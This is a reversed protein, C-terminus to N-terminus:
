EEGIKVAENIKLKNIFVALVAIGTVLMLAVVTYIKLNDSLNSVVELPLVSDAYAIKLLPTYIRVTLTGILIGMLVSMGTTLLHEWTLMATLKGKTLGMARLIGFQLKRKRVNMIWYILFGVFAVILTSIFGISYSGNLGKLLSDSKEAEMIDPRYVNLEKGSKILGDRMLMEVFEDEGARAEENLSMFLKFDTTNRVSYLYDFNMIIFSSSMAGVSEYRLGSGLGSLATPWYDIVAAVYCSMSPWGEFGYQNSGNIDVEIFDGPKANAQKALDKSILVSIPSLEMANLYHYWHLGNLSEGCWSIQAFEYPDIAMISVDGYWRYDFVDRVITNNAYAVRSVNEIYDKSTFNEVPYSRFPEPILAHSGDEYFEYPKYESFDPSVVADAGYRYLVTEEVNNNIIRASSSSYIGVAITMVLFLMLFRYDNGGRSVQIFASYVSPPLLRKIIKFILAIVFPYIRLFLLGSGLIFLSSIIYVIPDVTGNSNFGGTRKYIFFLGVAVVLFIVDLFSKEWFTMRSKRARRQKLNVITKRTAALAPFLIMAAFIVCAVIAYLYASADLHVIMKDRSNFELVGSASGITKAAVFGLLPGIVIAFISIFGCEIAYRVFIQGTKAGRSKFTSIENRDEEIIMKTVMVMYFALMAIVPVNLVWLSMQLETSRSIYANLLSVCNLNLSGRGIGFERAYRFLDSYYSVFSSLNEISMGEFSLNVYVDIGSLMEAGSNTFFVSEFAPRAAIMKRNFMGELKYWYPDEPDNITFTGVPRIRIPAGGNIATSYFEYIKGFEIQGISLYESDSLLVDLVGDEATESYWEGEIITIHSEVGSISAISYSTTFEFDGSRDVPALRDAVIQEYQNIISAETKAVGDIVRTRVEEFMKVRSMGFYSSPIKATFYMQGPPVGNEEEYRDMDISLMQRLTGGTYMPINSLIGTILLSGIILCVFMWINSRIKSLVSKIM